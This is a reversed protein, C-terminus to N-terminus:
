AVQPSVRGVQLCDVDAILLQRTQNLTVVYLATSNNVQQRAHLYTQYDYRVFAVQLCTKEVESLSLWLATPSPVNNTDALAVATM